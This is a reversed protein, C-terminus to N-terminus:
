NYKLLKCDMYEYVKKKLKKSFEPSISILQEIKLKELCNNKM